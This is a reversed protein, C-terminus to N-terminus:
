IMKQLIVWINKMFVIHMLMLGFFKIVTLKLALTLMSLILKKKGGQVFLLIKQLQVLFILLDIIM